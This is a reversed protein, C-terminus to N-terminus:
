PDSSESMYAHCVKTQQSGELTQGFTGIVRHGGTTPSKTKPMTAGYTFIGQSIGAQAEQVSLLLYLFSFLTFIVLVFKALEGWRRLINYEHIM